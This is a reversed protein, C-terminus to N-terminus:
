LDTCTASVNLLFKRARPNEGLTRWRLRAELGISASSDICFKVPTLPLEEFRGTQSQNGVPMQRGFEDDRDLMDDARLLGNGCDTDSRM